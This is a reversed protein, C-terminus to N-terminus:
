YKVQFTRQEGRKEPAQFGRRRRPTCFIWFSISVGVCGNREGESAMLGISTANECLCALHYRKRNSGALRRQGRLRKSASCSDSSKAALRRPCRTSSSSRGHTPM